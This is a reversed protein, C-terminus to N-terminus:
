RGAAAAATAQSVRNQVNVQNIDPDSGPKFVVSISSTARDVLEDVLLLAPQRRRQDAGRDARRGHNAIVEATAGPIADRRDVGAAAGAGPYQEIPAVRMAVLGGLVFLISIVSSLIPRDIFFHTFM